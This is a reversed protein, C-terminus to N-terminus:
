RQESMVRLLRAAERVITARDNELPYVGLLLVFIEGVREPGTVARLEPPVTNPSAGVPAPAGLSAPLRSGGAVHVVISTAHALLIDAYALLFPATEPGRRRLVGREREVITHARVLAAAALAATEADHIPPLARIKAAEQPLVAATLMLPVLARTVRDAAIMDLAAVPASASDNTVVADLAGSEMPTLAARVHARLAALYPHENTRVLSPGRVPEPSPAVPGAQPAPGPAVAPSTQRPPSDCGAASTLSICALTTTTLRFM